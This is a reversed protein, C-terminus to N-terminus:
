ATYGGNNSYWALLTQLPRQGQKAYNGPLSAWENRCKDIAAAIRGAKVDELAGRSRILEIAAQDQSAATFDPLGLRKALTAWTPRIIQYAGAATSVCGPGLGANRCMADSLREGRWEGTIAPHDRLDRITHRYGYCVRYPDGQGTTGEAQQIMTLFARVNAGATDPAVDAPRETLVNYAQEARDTLVDFSLSGLFDGEGAEAVNAASSSRSLLLIGASMLTLAITQRTM